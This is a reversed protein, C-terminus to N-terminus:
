AKNLFDHVDEAGLQVYRQLHKYDKHGSVVAMHPVPMQLRALRTLAGHRLDHFHLDVIGLKKCARSFSASASRPNFPFIRGETRDGVARRVLDMSGNILPVVQNNRAKRQPDKRERILVSQENWNVDEIQIRCIESLRMASSAGFEVLVDMPIQQRDNEAFFTCLRRLEDDTPIRNREKSRTDIREATLSQRAEKALNPNIDLNKVVRAWKLCSSLNSLDHSLTSGQVGDAKRSEM